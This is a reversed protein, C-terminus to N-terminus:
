RVSEYCMWFGMATVLLASVIPLARVLRGEAWRSGAVHRFKVVLVGVLVLMGALGASFALLLPLALWFLNMGVALVLMAVADTCPVIGGSVGLLILGWASLKGARYCRRPPTILIGM